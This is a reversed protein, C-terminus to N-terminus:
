HAGGTSPPRDLLLRILSLSPFAVVLVLTVTGRHRQLSAAEQAVSRGLRLAKGKAGRCPSPAAVPSPLLRTPGSLLGSAAAAVLRPVDDLHQHCSVARMPGAAKRDRAATRKAFPPKRSRRFRALSQRAYNSLFVLDIITHIIETCADPDGYFKRHLHAPLISRSPRILGLAPRRGDAGVAHEHRQRDTKPRFSGHLDRDSQRDLVRPNRELEKTLSPHHSLRGSHRTDPRDDVVILHPSNLARRSRNGGLSTEERCGM